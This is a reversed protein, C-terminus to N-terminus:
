REDELTAAPVEGDTYTEDNEVVTGEPLVGLDRALEEVSVHRAVVRHTHAEVV